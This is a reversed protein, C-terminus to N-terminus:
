PDRDNRPPPTVAPPTPVGPGNPGAPCTPDGGGLRLRKAARYAFPVLLEDLILTDLADLKGARLKAVGLRPVTPLAEVGGAQEISALKAEAARAFRARAEESLAGQLHRRRVTATRVDAGPLPVYSRLLARVRPDQWAEPRPALVSVARGEAWLVLRRQPSRVEAWRGAFPFSDGEGLDVPGARWAGGPGLFVQAAAAEDLWPFVPASNLVLLAEGDAVVKVVRNVGANGPLCRLGAPLDFAFGAVRDAHSRLPGAPSASEKASTRQAGARAKWLAWGGGALAGLVVAVAVVRVLSPKGGSAALRCGLCATGRACLACTHAGCVSCRGEAPREPHRACPRGAEAPARPATDAPNADTGPASM